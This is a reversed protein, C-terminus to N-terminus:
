ALLTLLKQFLRERLKRNCKTPPHPHKSSSTRHTCVCTNIWCTCMCPIVLMPWPGKKGHSKRLEYACTCVKFTKVPSNCCPHSQRFEVWTKRVRSGLEEGFSVLNLSAVLAEEHLQWGRRGHLQPCHPRSCQPLLHCCYWVFVDRLTMCYGASPSKPWQTVKKLYLQWLAFRSPVHCQEHEKGFDKSAFM